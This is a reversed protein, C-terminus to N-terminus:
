RRLMSERRTEKMPRKVADRASQRQAPMASACDMETSRPALLPAVSRASCNIASIVTKDSAGAIKIMTVDKVRITTTKDSKREAITEIELINRAIAEIAEDRKRTARNTSRANKDNSNKM